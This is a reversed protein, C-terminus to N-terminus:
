SFIRLAKNALTRHSLFRSCQCYLFSGLLPHEIANFIRQHRMALQPIIASQYAPEVIEKAVEEGSVFGQAIGEGSVMSAMGAADGALYVRGMRHGVYECGISGSELKGVSIPVRLKKLWSYFAANLQTNSHSSRPVSCGLRVEEEFPFAWGYGAGFRRFDFWVTPTSVSVAGGRLVRKPIVLQRAIVAAGRPLQLKRRVLSTAGDAAVITDAFITRGCDTHSAKESIESCRTNTLVCVRDQERLHTLLQRQWRARNGVHMYPTDSSVVVTGSPSVVRLRRHAEFQTELSSFSIGLIDSLQSLATPTLGGGCAKQGLTGHKEVVVVSAGHKSLHSAASVGAPGSGIICVDCKM